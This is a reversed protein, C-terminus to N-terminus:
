ESTRRERESRRAPRALADASDALSAKEERREYDEALAELRNAITQDIMNRAARRLTQATDLYEKSLM